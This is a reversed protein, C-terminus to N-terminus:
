VFAPLYGHELDRALDEEWARRARRETDDLLGPDVGVLVLSAVRAPHRAALGLAIRAGMSYGVVHARAPLREAFADIAEDWSSSAARGRLSREGEPIEGMGPVWPRPGHGPLAIAHVPFAPEVFRVVLDWAAPAGLFGHLLVLPASM